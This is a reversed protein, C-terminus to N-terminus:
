DKFASFQNKGAGCEPCVFSEPLDKFDTGPKIGQEPLGKEPDYVWGCIDCVYKEM